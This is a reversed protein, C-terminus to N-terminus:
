VGQVTSMASLPAECGAEVDMQPAVTCPFSPDGGGWLHRSNLPVYVRLSQGWSGGM